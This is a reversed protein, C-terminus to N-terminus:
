GKYSSPSTGYLEKFCKAFYSLNNFGVAYAIQTVSDAEQSLLQAARKLRFNRLLEGPAENTLAKLKRHLQTKSMALAEQMQPVGFDPTSFKEELLSLVQELFKQDLSTVTIKKPDITENRHTFFERLKQRQEVLNKVRVSLEGVDFPKTLYDDAGTELGEIKNAIGAKATLMIIPIHSTSLNTKLQKCLEIGDMKPMMLDTIILEPTHTIAMSLGAEGHLAELIRYDNVLQEKIFHRMDANDEVLLVTPLNRHDEKSITFPKKIDGKELSSSDVTSKEIRTQIEQLPLHITFFSGKHLESSVTITGDMLEVLDKSLSLGIGSGEYEKTNGTDVQYFRDFIYPLQDEPIGKGSDSIHMILRENEHTARFAIMSNDESFKFANSLLNYVIKELKDRDFSAWVTKKPIELKYDIHRQAAHSSFSSAAARLIKFVDGETTELKLNGEDIKSLELLQNVLNLVRNSNRRIMKVNEMSLREDPNQELHEIPGRILTLPTRFEHSINAFFNSKIRDLEQLEKNAKQKIRFQNYLLGAILLLILAFIIIVNRSTRQQKLRLAQLDNDKELLAIEKTKQENKYKEELDNTIAVVKENYLSDSLTNYLHAELYANEYDGLKNHAKSLLNHVKIETEISPISDLAILVDKAMTVTQEYRGEGFSSVALGYKIFTFLRKDDIVEALTLAEEFYQKAQGYAEINNHVIGLNNLVRATGLKDGMDRKIQLAELNHTIAKDYDETLNFIAALNTLCASIGPNFNLEQVLSLAEQYSAISKDYQKQVKYLAGMYNYARAEKNKDGTDHALTITELLLNIAIENKGEYQAVRGMEIKVDSIGKPDELQTFISLAEAHAKNALPYRSSTAYVNGKRLKAKGLLTILSQKEALEEAKIAYNLSANFDKRFYAYSLDLYAKVKTSDEKLTPLVRLISDAKTQGYLQLFGLLFLYVFVRKM